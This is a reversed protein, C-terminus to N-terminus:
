RVNKAAGAASDLPIYVTDRVTKYVYIVDYVTSDAVFTTDQKVIQLLDYYHLTDSSGAAGNAEKYRFSDPAFNWLAIYSTNEDRRFTGEVVSGNYYNELGRIIYSLLGAFPSKESRAQQALDSSRTFPTTRQQLNYHWNEMMTKLPEEVTMLSFVHKSPYLV